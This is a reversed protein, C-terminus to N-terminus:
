LPESLNFRECITALSYQMSDSKSRFSLRKNGSSSITLVKKVLAPPDNKDWVYFTSRATIAHLPDLQYTM